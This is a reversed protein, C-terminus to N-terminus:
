ERRRSGVFQVSIRTEYNNQTYQRELVQRLESTTLGGVQVDGFVPRASPFLSMLSVKNDDRVVVNLSLHVRDTGTILYPEKFVSVRLMDGPELRGLKVPYPTFSGQAFLSVSLCLVIVIVSVPRTEM